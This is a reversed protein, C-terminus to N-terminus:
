QIASSLFFLPSTGHETRIILGDKILQRLIKELTGPTSGTSGCLSVLTAPIRSHAFSILVLRATPNHFPLISDVTVAPINM